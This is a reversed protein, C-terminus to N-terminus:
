WAGTQRNRFPSGPQLFPHPHLIHVMSRMQESQSASRATDPSVSTSPSSSSYSTFNRKSFTNKYNSIYKLAIQLIVSIAPQAKQKLFAANSIIITFTKKESYGQLFAPFFTFHFM